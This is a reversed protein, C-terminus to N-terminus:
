PAMHGWSTTEIFRREIFHGKVAQLRTVIDLQSCSGIDTTRNGCKYSAQIIFEPRRKMTMSNLVIETKCGLWIYLLLVELNGTYCHILLAPLATMTFLAPM